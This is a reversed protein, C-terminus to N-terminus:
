SFMAEMEAQLWDLGEQVSLGEVIIKSMCENLKYSNYVRAAKARTEVDTAPYGCPAGNECFELLISGPEAKWYDDEAAANLAPGYVPALETIWGTYWVPDNMFKLFAEATTRVETDDFICWGYAALDNHSGAPGSPRMCVGTNANLDEYGDGALAALITYANCTMAVTGQLYNTNNSGADWSAADVPLSGANWMDVYLQLAEANEKCNANISGDAAFLGGGYDWMMSRFVQEGENENIGFGIGMGAIDPHLENIKNCADRFEEWTAPFRDYGAETFLDTRYVVPQASAFAPIIYVQDNITGCSVFSELFGGNAASLESILDTVDAAKVNPYTSLLIDSRMYSVDPLVGAEVAANYKTMYNQDTVWEYEITVGYTKEFEEVRALTAANAAESFSEYLWMTMTDSLKEDIEADIVESGAAEASQTASAPKEATPEKDKAACAALSLVMLLSLLTAVIRKM